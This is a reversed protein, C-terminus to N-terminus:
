ELREFATGADDGALIKKVIGGQGRVFQLWPSGVDARLELLDDVADPHRTARGGLRRAYEYGSSKEERM